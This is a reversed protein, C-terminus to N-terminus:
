LYLGAAISPDGITKAKDADIRMQEHDDCVCNAELWARDVDGDLGRPMDSVKIPGNVTEVMSEQPKSLRETLYARLKRLAEASEKDSSQAADAQTAYNYASRRESTAPTAYKDSYREQEDRKVANALLQVAEMVNALTVVEGATMNTVDLKAIDKLPTREIELDALRARNELDALRDYEADTFARM